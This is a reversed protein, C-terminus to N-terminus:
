KNSTLELKSQGQGGARRSTLPTFAAPFKGSVLMVALRQHAYKLASGNFSEPNSASVNM